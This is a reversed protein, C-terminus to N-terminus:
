GRETGIGGSRVEGSGVQMNMASVVVKQTYKSFCGSEPILQRLRLGESAASM